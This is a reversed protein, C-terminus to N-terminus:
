KAKQHDAQPLSLQAWPMFGLWVLLLHRLSFDGALNNAMGASLYLLLFSIYFYRYPMALRRIYSALGVVLILFVTFGLFGQEVVILLFEQHPFRKRFAEYNSIEKTLALFQAHWQDFGHGFVPAQQVLLMSQKWLEIRIGASTSHKKDTYAEIEQSIQTTRMQNKQAQIWAFSVGLALVILMVGALKRGRNGKFFVLASWLFVLPIASLLATRSDIAFMISALGLVIGLWLIMSKGNTRKWVVAAFLMSVFYLTHIGQQIYDKFVANRYFSVGDPLVRQPVLGIFQGWSIMVTLSMSIGFAWWARMRWRDDEGILSIILLPYAFTVLGLWSRWLSASQPAYLASFALALWWFLAGWAVPHGIALQMRDVLKPAALTALLALAMCINTAPKNIPIFFLCMVCAWRGMSLILLRIPMPKEATAPETM